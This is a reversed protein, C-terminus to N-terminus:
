CGFNNLVNKETRMKFSRLIIKLKGITLQKILILVFNYNIKYRFNSLIIFFFDSKLMSIVSLTGGDYLSDQGM